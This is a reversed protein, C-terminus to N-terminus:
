RSVVGTGVPIRNFIYDMNNNSLIIDKPNIKADESVISINPILLNLRKKSGTSSELEKQVVASSFDENPNICRFSEQEGNLYKLTLTNESLEVCLPPPAIPICLVMGEFINEPEIGMNSYLIQKVTVGFYNAISFITDNENVVYYNTTMCSPYQQIPLPICIQSDIQLNMPDIGPNIEKLREVTTQYRKSLAYLTDGKRIKYPFSGAKCNWNYNCNM